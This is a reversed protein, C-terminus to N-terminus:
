TFATGMHRIDLELGIGLGAGDVDDTIEDDGM